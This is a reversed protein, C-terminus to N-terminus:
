FSDDEAEENAGIHRSDSSSKDEVYERKRELHGSVKTNYCTNYHLIV